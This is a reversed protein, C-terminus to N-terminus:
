AVIAWKLMAHEARFKAEQQTLEIGAELSEGLIGYADSVQWRVMGRVAPYLTAQFGYREFQELVEAM